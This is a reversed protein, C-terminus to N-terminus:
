IGLGLHAHTLGTLWFRSDSHSFILTAFSPCMIAPSLGFPPLPLFSPLFFLYSAIRCIPPDPELPDLPVYFLVNKAGM